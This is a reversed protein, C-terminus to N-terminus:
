SRSRYVEGKKGGELKDDKELKGSLFSLVVGAEVFKRGLDGGEAADRDVNIIVRAALIDNVVAYPRGWGVNEGKSNSRKSYKSNGVRTGLSGRKHQAPTLSM